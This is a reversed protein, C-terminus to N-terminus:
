TAKFNTEEMYNTKTQWKIDHERPHQNKPTTYAAPQRDNTTKLHKMTATFNAPLSQAVRLQSQLPGSEHASIQRKGAAMQM